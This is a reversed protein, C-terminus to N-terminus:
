TSEEGRIYRYFCARTSLRGVRAPAPQVYVPPQSAAASAPRVTVSYILPAGFAAAIGRSAHRRTVLHPRGLLGAVDRRKLADAGRVEDIALSPAIEELTGAGDCHKWVSAAQPALARVTQTGEDYVVLGDVVEETVLGDTRARPRANM